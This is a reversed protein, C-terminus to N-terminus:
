EFLEKPVDYPFWKFEGDVKTLFSIAGSHALAPIQYGKSQAWYTWGNLESSCLPCILEDAETPQKISGIPIFDKAYYKEGPTTTGEYDYLHVKCDPCYIPVDGYVVKCILALLLLVMLTVIIFLKVNCSSKIKTKVM